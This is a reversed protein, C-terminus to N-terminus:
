HIIVISIAVGRSVIAIARRCFLRIFSAIASGIFLAFTASFFPAPVLWLFKMKGPLCQDSTSDNEAYNQEANEDVPQMRAIKFRGIIGVRRRVDMLDAGAYGSRNFAYVDIVIFEHFAFLSQDHEILAIEFDGGLLRSRLHELTPGRSILGLGVLRM